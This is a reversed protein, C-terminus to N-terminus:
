KKQLLVIDFNFSQMVADSNCECSCSLLGLCPPPSDPVVAHGPLSFPRVTRVTSRRVSFGLQLSNTSLVLCMLCGHRAMEPPAWWMWLWLLILPLWGRPLFGGGISEGLDSAFQPHSFVAIVQVGSSVSPGAPKPLGRNSTTGPLVELCRTHCTEIGSRHLAGQAM